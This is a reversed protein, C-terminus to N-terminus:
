KGAGRVRKRELSGQPFGAPHTVIGASSQCPTDPKGHLWWAFPPPVMFTRIVLRYLTLTRLRRLLAGGPAPPRPRLSPGPQISEGYVFGLVKGVFFFSKFVFNPPIVLRRHPFISSIIFSRAISISSIQRISDFSGSPVSRSTHRISVRAAYPPLFFLLIPTM